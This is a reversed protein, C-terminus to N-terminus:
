ATAACSALPLAYKVNKAKSYDTSKESGVEGAVTWESGTFQVDTETCMFNAGIMLKDYTATLTDVKGVSDDYNVKGQCATLAEADLADQQKVGLLMCQTVQSSSWEKRRSEENPTFLDTLQQQYSSAKACKVKFQSNFQCMKLQRDELDNSCQQRQNTYTNSATDVVTSQASVANKADNCKGTWSKHTSVATDMSGQAKTQMETMLTELKQLQEDCNGAASIDCSFDFTHTSAHWEYPETDVEQQCPMIQNSRAGKLNTQEKEWATLDRKELVMCDNWTQDATDAASKDEVLEAASETLAGILSNISSQDSQQAAKIKADVGSQIEGVVKDITESLGEMAGPTIEQNQEAISRITQMAQNASSEDMHEQMLASIRDVASSSAGAKFDRRVAVVSPALLVAVIKSFM